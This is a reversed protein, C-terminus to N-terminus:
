ICLSGFESSCFRMLWLIVLIVSNRLLLLGLTMAYLKVLGSSLWIPWLLTMLLIRTMM